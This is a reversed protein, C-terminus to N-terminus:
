VGPGVPAARFRGSLLGLAERWEFYGTLVTVALVALGSFASVLILSGWGAAGTAGPLVRDLGAGAAWGAVVALLPVGWPRLAAGLFSWRMVRALLFMFLLSGVLHSVASAAMAGRLGFRPLMFLSIALHLVTTVVAFWAELETRGVGRAISTGMGTALTLAMAVTLWQLVATAEPHPAGLWAAYLRPAAALLPAVVLAGITLYYRSGRDYLARLRESEGAASMSAAEAMVPALLLGPLATVATAVRAGLEYSTVTALGAFRTLLFKDMQANAMALVNTAQMPAGFRFSERMGRRARSPSAWRFEPVRTRILTVAVVTSVAGGVCVNIILGELGWGRSLVLVMGIGQQLATALLVMNALDFRGYGQLTAMAVNAIGALLFVVAGLNMAFRASPAVEDPIRLWGLVPGALGVVVLMWLLALAVYGLLALTAFAGAEEHNNRGRAAAVFRLTGQALGLDFAAFYGTLAFFLSWIAFRGPGLADLIAPTFLLWLLLTALRGSAAHLTNTSLRRALGSGRPAAPMRPPTSPVSLAQM